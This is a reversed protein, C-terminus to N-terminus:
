AAGVTDNGDRTETDERCAQIVINAQDDGDTAVAAEYDELREEDHQWQPDQREM